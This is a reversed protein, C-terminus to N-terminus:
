RRRGPRKLPALLAKVSKYLRFAWSREIRELRAELENSVRRTQELEIKLAEMSSKLAAVSEKLKVVEEKRSEALREFKSVLEDKEGLSEQAQALRADREAIAAFADNIVKEKEALVRDREGLQEQKAQLAKLAQGLEEMAADLREGFDRRVRQLEESRDALASELGDIHRRDSEKSDELRRVHNHLRDLLLRLEQEVATRERHKGFISQLGFVEALANQISEYREGLFCPLLFGPFKGFLESDSRRRMRQVQERKGLIEKINCAVYLMALPGALACTEIAAQAGLHGIASLVGRVSASAAQYDGSEGWFGSGLREAFRPAVMLLSTPLVRALTAEEFDKLIMELANKEALFALSADSLFRASTGHHVHYAVADRAILVRYGSLWFRYGLDVDEFYAFFSEDFGGVQLFAERDVMMAAACGFVTEALAEGEKVDRADVPLGYGDQQGFGYFTIRGGDFDIRKGERDLIRSAVCAVDRGRSFARQMKSLWGPSLTVDTNIFAVYRTPAARAGQNAAAAFGVNEENKMLEAEPFEDAVIGASDDESGNDIVVIRVKSEQRRISSLCDRVLSGGNYNVVVFTTKPETVDAAPSM